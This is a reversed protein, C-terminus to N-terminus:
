AKMELLASDSSGYHVPLGAKDPLVLTGIHAFGSRIYYDILHQNDSWTDMRIYTRGNEACFGKAWEIITQLIHQGRFDDHTVIRHLYIAPDADKELWILPDNNTHVFICAVKDGSVVKWQRGEAIDQEVLAREFGMWAKHFQQKQYAIAMDYFEFILDIDAPNCRTVIM